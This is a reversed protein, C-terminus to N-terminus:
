TPLLDIHKPIHYKLVLRWGSQWQPRCVTCSTDRQQSAATAASVTVRRMM